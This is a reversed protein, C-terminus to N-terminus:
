HRCRWWSCRGAPEGDCIMAYQGCGAEERTKRRRYGARGHRPAEWLASERLAPRTWREIKALTLIGFGGLSLAEATTLCSQVLASGGQPLHGGQSAGAISCSRPYFGVRWGDLQASSPFYPSWCTKGMRLAGWHSWWNVQTCVPM